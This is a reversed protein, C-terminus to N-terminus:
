YKSSHLEFQPKDVARTEQPLVRRAAKLFADAQGYNENAALGLSFDRFFDPSSLGRVIAIGRDAAVVRADFCPGFNHRPTPLLARWGCAAISFVRRCKRFHARLKESIATIKKRFTHFLV